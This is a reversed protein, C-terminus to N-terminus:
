NGTLFTYVRSARDEDKELRRIQSSLQSVLHRGDSIGVYLDPRVHRRASNIDDKTAEKRKKAGPLFAEWGELQEWEMVLVHTAADIYLRAEELAGRFRAAEMSFDELAEIKTTLMGHEEIHPMRLRATEFLLKKIEDPTM